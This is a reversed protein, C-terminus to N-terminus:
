PFGAEDDSFLTEALERERRARWYAAERELLAATEADVAFTVGVETFEYDPM